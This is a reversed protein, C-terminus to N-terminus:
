PFASICMHVLVPRIYLNRQGPCMVPLKINYKRHMEVGYKMCIDKYRMASSNEKIMIMMGLVHVAAWDVHGSTDRTWYVSLGDHGARSSCGLGCPGAPPECTWYM